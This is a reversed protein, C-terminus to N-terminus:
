WIGKHPAAFQIEDVMWGRWVRPTVTYEHNDTALDKDIRRERGHHACRDIRPAVSQVRLNLNAHIFPGFLLATNVAVLQHTQRLARERIKDASQRGGLQCQEVSCKCEAEAKSTRNRVGLACM